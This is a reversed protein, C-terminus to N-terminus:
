DRVTSCEAAEVGVCLLLLVIRVRQLGVDENYM